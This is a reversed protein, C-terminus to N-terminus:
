LWGFLRFAAYHCALSGMFNAWCSWLLRTYNEEPDAQLWLRLVKLVSWMTVAGIYLVLAGAFYDAPRHLLEEM